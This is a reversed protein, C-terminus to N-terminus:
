RLRPEGFDRMLLGSRPKPAFLTTKPPMREGDVARNVITGLSPPAVLFGLADGEHVTEFLARPDHEYTVEGGLESLVEDVFASDVEGETPMTWLGGGVVGALGPRVENGLDEFDGRYEFLRVKARLAAATVGRAIRHIPRLLPPEEMMDGILALTADWPGPGDTSRREESYTLATEFRHHGDAIILGTGEATRQFQEARLSDLRWVRHRIGEADTCAALPTEDKVSSALDSMLGLPKQSVFWLPELNARTARLHALRDAKPAAMTKEHPLIDRSHIDLACVVGSTWGGDHDTRYLFLDEADDTALIGESLWEDLAEAAREHSKPDKASAILRVVNHPDKAALDEILKDDLLDYPPSTVADLDTGEAYRLARFPRVVAM